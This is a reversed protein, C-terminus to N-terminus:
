ISFVKLKDVLPGVAGATVASPSFDTKSFIQREVERLANEFVERGRAGEPHNKYRHRLGTFRKELAVVGSPEVRVDSYACIKKEFDSTAANNLAQDVGICDILEIIRKNIGLEAIINMTAAHSEAGYKEIFERKVAEWSALTGVDVLEPMFQRTYDFDFKVINGMDHLLCAAVVSHRDIGIKFHACILDAVGAVRLMHAELQPMIQYKKYVDQIILM